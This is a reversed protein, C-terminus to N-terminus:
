RLAENMAAEMIEAREDSSHKEDKLITEFMNKEADMSSVEDRLRTLEQHQSKLQETLEELALDRAQLYLNM